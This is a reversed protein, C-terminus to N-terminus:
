VKELLRYILIAAEGRTLGSHPRFGSEDGLIVSNAGLASVSEKAYDSISESDAFQHIGSYNIGIKQLTKYLIVATDQRTVFDSPHFNYGDGVIIGNSSLINVSDFFWDDSSVDQFEVVSSTAKIDFAISVM